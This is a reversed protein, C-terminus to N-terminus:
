RAWPQRANGGTQNSVGPIGTQQAPNGTQQAPNGTQQVGVQPPPATPPVYSGAPQQNYVSAPPEYSDPLGDSAAATEKKDDAFHMRNVLVDTAFHKKGDQDDWTRSQIAGEVAIRRGKSTYKSIVEATKNFCVCNIFDAQQQGEKAGPRDIALTFNCIKTGSQLDKIEPDKTLRGMGLWNNLM